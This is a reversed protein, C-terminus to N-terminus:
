RRRPAAPARAGRDAQSETAFGSTITLRATGPCGRGSAATPPRPRARAPPSRRHGLRDAEAGEPELQDLDPGPEAPERGADLDARDAARALRRRLRAGRARSSRSRSGGGARAAGRWALSPSWGPLLPPGLWLVLPRCRSRRRRASGHADPGPRTARAGAVKAPDNFVPQRGFAEFTRTEGASSGARGAITIGRPRLDAVVDTRFGDGRGPDAPLRALLRPRHGVPGTTYLEGGAGGDIFYPIEGQGRTSSSGRSTASSSATSEPTRRSRSSCTTTSRRRRDGQGDHPEDRDADTYSQDRPDQTPMHMVVFALRGDEDADAAVREFFDFQAEGDQTQASPIQFADCLHDVLLLQRHLDLAGARRRRLLPHGRRRSRRRAPPRPQDAQGSVREADGTPYPRDAFFDRYRSFDTNVLPFGELGPTPAYRDHNGIGAYWPIGARDYRKM